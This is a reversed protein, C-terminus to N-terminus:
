TGMCSIYLVGMAGLARGGNVVPLPYKFWRRCQSPKGNNVNSLMPVYWPKREGWHKECMAMSLVAGNLFHSRSCRSVTVNGLLSRNRGVEDDSLYVLYHTVQPQSDSPLLALPLRRVMFILHLLVIHLVQYFGPSKHIIIMNQIYKKSTTCYVIVLGLKIYSSWNYHTIFWCADPPGKKHFQRWVSFELALNSM